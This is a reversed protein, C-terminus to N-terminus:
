PQESQLQADDVARCVGCVMGYLRHALITASHQDAFDRVRQEAAQQQTPDTLAQLHQDLGAALAPADTGPLLQVAAAVDAFLPLPTTAIPRRATIAMRVAASSSEESHQYPFVVLDALSLLALSEAEPLYRTELTVRQELGLAAIRTHLQQLEM